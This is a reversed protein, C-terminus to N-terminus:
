FRWRTASFGKEKDFGFAVVPTVEYIHSPPHDLGDPYFAGDRVTPQWWPYKAPFEAAVRHLTAVDTVLKAEGEVVLDFTDDGIAVVCHPNRALNKAKRTTKRANFYLAGNLWVGLVPALHPRADRRVTGVLYTDGEQLRTQVDMWPTLPVGSPSLLQEAVPEKEAM